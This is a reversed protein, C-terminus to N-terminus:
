KADVWADSGALKYAVAAAVCALALGLSVLGFGGFLYIPKTTYSALFKVVLLDLLM